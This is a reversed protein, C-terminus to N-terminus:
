TSISLKNSTKQNNKHNKKTVEKQKKGQLKIIKKVLINREKQKKHMYKLNKIQTEWPTWIYQDVVIDVQKFQSYNFNFCM